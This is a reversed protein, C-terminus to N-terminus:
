ASFNPYNLLWGNTGRVLSWTGAYQQRRGGKVELLDVQVTASNATQSLPKLQLITIRSTNSFRGNIQVAPPYQARMSPTWLQAAQQFQHDSVLTYFAQVAAQPTNAALSSSVPPIAPATPAPPTPTSTPSVPTSTARPAPRSTPLAQMPAVAAKTPVPASTATATPTSTPARHVVAGPTHGRGSRADAVRSTTTSTADKPGTSAFPGHEAFLFAGGGAILVVLALLAALWGHSTSGRDAAPRARVPAVNTSASRPMIRNESVAVTPEAQAVLPARAAVPERLAALAGALADRMAAASQYRLAPDKALAKAVVAETLPSVDPRVQRLPPPVDNIHRLAIEVMSRGDFLERGALLEWLLVGLSYIDSREDVPQGRAQEPSIYNATGAVVNTATLQTMGTARAIGFDAVKVRGAGDLLINQPKVDRHIVGKDHAAELASTVQETISLADAEPLPGRHAIDEKLNHGGVAEMVMYYTGDVKGWDYVSVINPHNLRAASQAERQFRKVFSPDQAGEEHLVKVAVDRKLVLDRALYVRASGGAGIQRLIEYRGGIIKGDM